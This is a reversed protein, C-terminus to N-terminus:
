FREEITTRQKREGNVKIRARERREEKKSTRPSQPQYLSVVDKPNITEKEVSPWETRDTALPAIESSTGQAGLQRLRSQQSQSVSRNRM